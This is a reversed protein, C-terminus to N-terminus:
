VNKMICIIDRSPFKNFMRVSTKLDNVIREAGSDRGNIIYIVRGRRLKGLMMFEFCPQSMADRSKREAGSDEGDIIELAFM